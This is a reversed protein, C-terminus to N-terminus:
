SCGSTEGCNGCKYCSGNVVMLAGCSHCPPADISSRYGESDAASGHVGHAVIAPEQPQALQRPPPLSSFPFSCGV